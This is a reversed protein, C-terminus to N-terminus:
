KTTTIYEKYKFGFIKSKHVVFLKYKCNIMVQYKIGKSDTYFKGTSKPACLEKRTTISVYNGTSDIRVKTQAESMLCLCCILLFFLSLTKM